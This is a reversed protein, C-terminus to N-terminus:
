GARPSGPRTPHDTATCSRPETPATPPPPATPTSYSPGAGGWRVIQVWAHYDLADFVASSVGHRFYGAWGALFRNISQILTAPDQNRTSRYTKASVKKKAAQVATKSPITYVYHKQTGQKRMRRITFGLFDFGEDCGPIKDPTPV